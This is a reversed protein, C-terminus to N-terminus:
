LVAKVELVRSIKRSYIKSNKILVYLEVLLFLIKLRFTKFM